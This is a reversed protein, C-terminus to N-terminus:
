RSAPLKALVFNVTVTEGDKVTVQQPAARLDEHWVRLEQVGAPVGELRFAGDGGSVASLEDTVFLWGRMWTHTSCMLKVIGARDVPKSLTVNPPLGVNFLVRGDATSAHTTHLVVPDGNSVKVTGAPRLVAVHPAFRCTVNAVSVEAPAPSKVGTVTLVANALHGAADVSLSEDPLTTGCVNPDVTVRIAARAPEKTTVVGVITGGARADVNPTAVLATALTLAALATNRGFTMTM